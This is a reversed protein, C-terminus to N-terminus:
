VTEKQIANNRSGDKPLFYSSPYLVLEGEVTKVTGLSHEGKVRYEEAFEIVKRKQPAYRRFERLLETLSIENEARTEVTELIKLQWESLSTRIIDYFKPTLFPQQPNFYEPVKFKYMLWFGWQRQHEIEWVKKEIGDISKRPWIDTLHKTTVTMSSFRRDDWELFCDSPNNNSIIINSYNTVRIPDKGKREVSQIANNYRKITPMDDKTWAAEDVHILRNNLLEGNFSSTFFNKKVAAFYDVGVLPRIVHDALWTKGAGKHGLNHLFVRNTGMICSRIWCLVYEREEPIPYLHEFFEQYLPPCKLNEIEEQNPTYTRWEPAQYLNYYTNGERDKRYKEISLPNFELHAFQNRNSNIIEKPADREWIEYSLSLVKGTKANIIIGDHKHGSPNRLAICNDYDYSHFLEKHNESKPPKKNREELKELLIKWLTEVYVAKENESKEHYTIKKDNSINFESLLLPLREKLRNMSHHSAAGMFSYAGRQTKKMYGALIILDALDM